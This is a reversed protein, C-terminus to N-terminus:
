YYFVSFVHLGILVVLLLAFPIHLFLWGRLARQLTYHADMELKTKYLQMLTALTGKEEDNLYKDISGFKKTEQQITGAPNFFYSWRPLPASLVGSIKQRYFTQLSDGGEKVLTEARERTQDILSPIRDFNVETSLGANLMMPIWKQLASGLLGSLVIWVSLGWLWWTILGQPLSFNTHMFVLLLFIVGGYVHFQLYHWARQLRPVRLFRRRLSYMVIGLFMVCAAIGYGLGWTSGPDLRGFMANAAYILLCVLVSIGFAGLWEPSQIWKNYLHSAGPRKRQYIATKKM